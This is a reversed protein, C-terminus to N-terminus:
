VPFLLDSESICKCGEWKDVSVGGDLAEMLSASDDVLVVV